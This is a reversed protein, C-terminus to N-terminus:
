RCPVFLSLLLPLCLFRAFSLFFPSFPPLPHGNRIYASWCVGFHLGEKEKEIKSRGDEKKEGRKRTRGRGGKEEDEDLKGRGGRIWREAGDEEQKSRGREIEALRGRGRAGRAARTRPPQIGVFLSGTDWYKSRPDRSRDRGRACIRDVSWESTKSGEGRKRKKQRAGAEGGGQCGEENESRDLYRLRSLVWAARVAKTARSETALCRNRPQSNRAQFEDEGSRGGGNQNGGLRVSARRRSELRVVTSRRRSDIRESDMTERKTAAQIFSKSNYSFETSERLYEIGSSKSYIHFPVSVVCVLM